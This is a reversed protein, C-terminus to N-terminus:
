AAWRVKEMRLFDGERGIEQFGFHRALRLSPTNTDKVRIIVRDYQSLMDGLFGTIISRIRWKGRRDPDVFLDFENGDVVFVGGDFPVISVSHEIALRKSDLDGGVRCQDRLYDRIVQWSADPLRM